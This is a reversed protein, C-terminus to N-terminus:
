PLLSLTKVLPEFVALVNQYETNYNCMMLRKPTDLFAIGLQALSYLRRNVGEIIFLDSLPYLIIVSGQIHGYPPSAAPSSLSDQHALFNRFLQQESLWM